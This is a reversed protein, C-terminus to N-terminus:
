PFELQVRHLQQTKPRLPTKSIAADKLTTTNSSSAADKSAATDKPTATDKTTTTDKPAAFDEYATANKTDADKPAAAGQSDVDAKSIDADQTPLDDETGSPYENYATLLSVDENTLSLVDRIDHTTLVFGDRNFFTDSYYNDFDRFLSGDFLAVFSFAPIKQLERNELQSITPKDPNILNILGCVTIILLFLITKLKIVKFDVKKIDVSRVSRVLRVPRM